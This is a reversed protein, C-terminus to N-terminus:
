LRPHKVWGVYRCLIDSTADDLTIILDWYVGQIWEHKSGDQHVMMGRM